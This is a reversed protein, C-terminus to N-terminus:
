PPAPYRYLHVVELQEYSAGSRGRGKISIVSVEYGAEQLAKAELWVRRDNPVPLNEVIILVKNRCDSM